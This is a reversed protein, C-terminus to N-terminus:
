ELSCHIHYAGVMSFINLEVSSHEQYGNPWYLWLGATWGAMSPQISLVAFTDPKLYVVAGEWSRFSEVILGCIECGKAVGEECSKISLSDTWLGHDLDRLRSRSAHASMGCHACEDDPDAM